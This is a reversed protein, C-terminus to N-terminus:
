NKTERVDIINLSVREEGNWADIGVSFIIDYLTHNDPKLGPPCNFYIAKIKNKGTEVYFSLHQEERGVRRQWGTKVGCLMFIPKPNGIGFPELNALKNCLAKTIENGQLGLDVKIKRVLLKKDIQNNALDTLKRIFQEYKEAKLTLGAAGSHGGYKELCGSVSDLVEVINIGEISRASGTIEGNEQSCVIVPRNFRDVLRSASPGIIGRQWRGLVVLINNRDLNKEKAEAVAENVVKDMELQRENNKLNLWEALENAEKKDETVLLEFSKAAHDIRGPANIRPAIQFGATYTNITEPKIGAVKYLSQLGINKTKRLVILGYKVIVRNEGTVPVVDAVTSVAVLDLNWKLFQENIEKFYSSLAGVLKYAVGCGCLESFPYKSGPLKPHVIVFAKPLDDGILHHDTIILDTKKNQCYKAEDLSRIGLDVTIILSCSRELLYDIGERSLGYGSERDPIYVVTEIGVRRLAKYLLAAGPIGDADYDAFIGIKERDEKARIIRGVAKDMGPILRPDNMDRRFDPSLFSELEEKNNVFIGRNYLLQQIIDDYKREAVQWIKDM